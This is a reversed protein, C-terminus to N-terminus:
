DKRVYEISQRKLYSVHHFIYLRTDDDTLRLHDLLNATPTIIIGAICELNKANFIRPLKVGQHGLVTNTGFHTQLCRELSGAKWELQQSGNFGYEINTCDIMLLLTAALDIARDVLENENEHTKTLKSRLQDRIHDRSHREQLLKTIDVLDQHTRALVHRGGDHLARECEKVYFRWYADSLICDGIQLEDRTMGWFANAISAKQSACLPDLLSSTLSM